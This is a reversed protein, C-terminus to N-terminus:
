KQQDSKTILNANVFLFVEDKQVNCSDKYPEVQERYIFIIIYLIHEASVTYYIYYIVCM